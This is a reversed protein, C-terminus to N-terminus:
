GKLETLFCMLDFAYRGSHERDRLGNRIAEFVPVFDSKIDCQFSEALTQSVALCRDVLKPLGGPDAPYRIHHLGIHLDQM